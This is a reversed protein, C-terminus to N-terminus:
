RGSQSRKAHRDVYRCGNPQRCACRGSFRKGLCICCSGLGTGCHGYRDGLRQRSACQGEHSRGGSRHDRYLRSVVRARGICLGRKTRVGLSKHTHWWRRKAAAIALPGMIRDHM